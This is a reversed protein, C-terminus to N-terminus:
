LAKEDTTWSRIVKALNEPVVQSQVFEPFVMKNHIINTLSIPGKYKIFNYFIFENLLSAKYCVITPLEFLGTSLTVTGSAALSLHCAKMATTLEESEYWVDVYKEYQQYIEPNLHNVKVLHVEVNM